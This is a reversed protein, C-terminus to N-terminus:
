ERAKRLLRQNEKVKEIIQGDIIDGLRGNRKLADDWSM